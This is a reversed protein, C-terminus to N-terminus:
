RVDVFKATIWKKAAILLVGLIVSVVGIVIFFTRESSADEPHYYGALSGALATGTALSMMWVAFMRSPYAEPALKTALSNGIPSLLLEAMTFLFLIWIIAYLPTSNPGGGAFPLFFFLSLGIIVNAVGFKVPSSWQRDGLKTWVTAFVVSFLIIFAPNISQVTEPALEVGFITRNLRTESFIAIVTFQQQFIGFFLSGSIFIPIFGILRSKETATTLPSFYMQCWLVVAAILAVVTVINSLWQVKVTGTSVLLVCAGVLVVAGGFWLPYKRSPLPNPVDHGAAGITMGRMLMYQTLGVAMGVAALGFGWHFGNTVRLWGTLIPGALAGINVGLYFISFGADRRTDTRSYLQGLVVSANTKVGGSGLAIAILGIALGIVGPLVALSIHGLMVLVASWFLTRESGLFRDAVLAAALAAMYVLGGYAGIISTAQAKDMGLGGEGVSFYMYYVLIAQMGYFSFREWMEVGFLNALGWPQGFFTKERAPGGVQQSSTMDEM